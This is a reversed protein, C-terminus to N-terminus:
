AASVPSTGISVCNRGRRKADYLAADASAILEEASASPPRGAVGFSATVYLPMGETTLITREALATRVREALRAAGTVDTGPLILCFEEGGWRAALDIGRVTSALVAALERLVLDGTPHGFTDNVRKFHDLDAFVISLPSGFRSARALEIALRQEAARRNALGTLADVLAQQEVIHHLRANELAIVAHGVLLSASELDLVSFESGYLVLSGFSTGGAQLPLDIRDAGADPDGVEVVRGDPGTVRGGVARTSDVATEVIAELLQDVDHTSALAEGFRLTVDRLRRREDELERMREDLQEAMENFAASLQAFEDRGRVPVRESLMGAALGHAASVLRRLTAAISHGLLYAVGAILVLSVVLATLLRIWGSRTASDIWEQPSLVVLRLGTDSTSTKAGLARFRSGGVSVTSPHDLRLDLTGGLGPSAAVIRDNEVLALRQGSRLGAISRLREALGQDLPLSAIVRGLPRGGTSVISATREVAAPYTMGVTFQGDVDVRVHASSDVLAELEPLEARAVADRVRLDAAFAAALERTYAVEEAYAASGARLAAQLQADVTRAESRALV